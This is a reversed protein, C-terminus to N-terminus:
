SNNQTNLSKLEPHVKIEELVSEDDLIVLLILNLFISHNSCGARMLSILFAYLM